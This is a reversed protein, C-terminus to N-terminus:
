AQEFQMGCEPCRDRQEIVGTLNYGCRACIPHGRAHLIRRILRRYASARVFALAALFVTFGALGAGLTLLSAFRSPLWPEVRYVLLLGFMVWASVVFLCAAQHRVDRRAARRVEALIDDREATNEVYRLEPCRAIVLWKFM